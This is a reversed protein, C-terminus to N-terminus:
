GICAHTHMCTHACVCVSMECACLFVTRGCGDSMCVSKCWQEHACARVDSVYLKSVSDSMCVCMCLVYISVHFCASENTYVCMLCVNM